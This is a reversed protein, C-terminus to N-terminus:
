FLPLIRHNIFKKSTEDKRRERQEDRDVVFRVYSEAISKDGTTMVGLLSGRADRRVQLIPHVTMHITLKHRNIAASVSDVLFPMDDNVMEVITFNSAYGTTEDSPNYIRLKAEGARRLKAFNLHALAARAMIEPSRGQLDDFPVNAFYHRLFRNREATKPLIASKRAAAVIDDILKLSLDGSRRNKQKSM